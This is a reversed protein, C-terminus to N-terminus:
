NNFLKDFRHIGNKKCWRKFLRRSGGFKEHKIQYFEKSLQIEEESMERQVPKTLEKMEEDTISMGCKFGIDICGCGPYKNCFKSM